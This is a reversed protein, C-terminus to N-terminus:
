LGGIKDAVFIEADMYTKFRHTKDLFMVDVYETLGDKLHETLTFRADRYTITTKCVDSSIESMCGVVRNYRRKFSEALSNM